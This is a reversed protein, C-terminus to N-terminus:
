HIRLPNRTVEIRYPPLFIPTIEAEPLDKETIRFVFTLRAIGVGSKVEASEFRWRRAAIKAAQQLLPHGSVAEASTVNGASDIKVEVIVDSMARAAVAIPPYLPAVAALVKPSEIPKVSRYASATFTVLGILLSITLLRQANSKKMRGERSDILNFAVYRGFKYTSQLRSLGCAEIAFSAPSATSSNHGGPTLPNSLNGADMGHLADLDSLIRLREISLQAQVPLNSGRRM